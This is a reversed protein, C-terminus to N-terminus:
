RKMFPVKVESGTGNRRFRESGRSRMEPRQGLGGRLKIPLVGLGKLSNPFFLSFLNTLWNKHSNFFIQFAFHELSRPVTPTQPPPAM